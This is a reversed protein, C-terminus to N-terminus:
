VVTLIRFKLAFHLINGDARILIRQILAESENVILEGRACNSFWALYLKQM